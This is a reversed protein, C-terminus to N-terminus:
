SRPASFTQSNICLACMLTGHRREARRCCLAVHTSGVTQAACGGHLMRTRLPRPQQM